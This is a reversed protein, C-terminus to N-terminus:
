KKWERLEKLRQRCHEIGDTLGANYESSTYCKQEFEQRALGEYIGFCQVAVLVADELTLFMKPKNM